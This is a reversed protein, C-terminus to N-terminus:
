DSDLVVPGMSFAFCIIFGVLALLTLIGAASPGETTAAGAGTKM